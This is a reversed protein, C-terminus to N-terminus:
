RLMQAWYAKAAMRAEECQGLTLAKSSPYIVANMVDSSDNVHDLNLYHGIEHAWINPYDAVSNEFVAGHVDGGPMSTWANKTTGWAGTMVILLHNDDMFTRRISDTQNAASSGSSLGYDEAKVQEYVETQFGIKCQSWVENMAAMSIATQEPSVQPNGASNLYSVTKVALCLQEPDDSQCSQGINTARCVGDQCVMGGSGDECAAAFLALTTLLITHLKGHKM